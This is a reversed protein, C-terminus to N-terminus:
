KKDTYRLFQKVYDYLASKCAGADTQIELIISCCAAEDMFASLSRNFGQKDVARYYEFSAAEAWAQANSSHCAAVYETLSESQNLGHLTHFISGGGNNILLIRLNRIRSINWLAGVGYFFSLDGTILYVPKESVAAFGIATPLCGEIGNIGRNCYVNLTRESSFFQSNRVASSNALILDSYDPLQNILRGTAYIDSFATEEEQPPFILASKKHWLDKYGVDPVETKAYEDVQRMDQYNLFGSIFGLPESDIIDTLNQYIDVVDDSQSIHWHYAPNNDRLFKKLRKSVVHGCFTVLLDPTFDATEEKSLSYLILDFSHIFKESDANALHESLVVCGSIDSLRELQGTLSEDRFMQGIVIMKKRAGNWTEIFANIAVRKEPKHYSIKRVGPLEATTYNFLPDSVPVNIHVPGGADRRCCLLAENILRNCYWEDAEDKIEPLSVSKKVFSSYINQQYMTQGDMQGIWEAPRDATIVILPLQQYFAESVAPAYNLAASGSTCCVAVPQGTNLIIGLAYFSANREDVVIHCNFCGCQSITQVLPASRAGPSLVVEKIDYAKLLAVLQLINKKDSLNM